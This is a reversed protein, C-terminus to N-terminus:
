APPQDVILRKGLSVVDDHLYGLARYFAIAEANSSRVQLNLKPCGLALLAQEAHAMLQEGHGQRRHDSHVALYNIWGRHGDFGVMVSAMLRGAVEGVLFLDPHVGLKRLIDKAPDNWSRTLGCAQWLAIVAPADPERFVRVDFRSATGTPLPHEAM